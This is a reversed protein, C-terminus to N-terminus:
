KIILDLYTGTARKMDQYKRLTEGSHNSDHLIDRHPVELGDRLASLGNKM